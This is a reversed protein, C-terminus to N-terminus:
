IIFLIFIYLGCVHLECLDLGVAEFKSTAEPLVPVIGDKLVQFVCLGYFCMCNIKYLTASYSEIVQTRNYDRRNKTEGCDSWRTTLSISTPYIPM